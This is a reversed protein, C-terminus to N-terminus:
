SLSLQLKVTSILVDLAQKGEGGAFGVSRGVSLGVLGGVSGGSVFLTSYELQTAFSEDALM